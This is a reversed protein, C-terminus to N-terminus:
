WLGRARITPRSVYTDSSGSLSGPSTKKAQVSTEDTLSRGQVGSYYSSAPVAGTLKSLMALDLATVVVNGGFGISALPCIALDVDDLPRSWEAARGPPFMKGQLGPIPLQVEIDTQSELVHDATLVYGYAGAPSMVKMCFGTGITGRRTGLTTADLDVLEVDGLIRATSNLLHPNIGV